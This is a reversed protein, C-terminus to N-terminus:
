DSILSYFAWNCALWITSKSVASHLKVVQSTSIPVHQPCSEAASSNLARSSSCSPSRMSLHGDSGVVFDASATQIPNSGGVRVLMGDRQSLEKQSVVIYYTIALLFPVLIMIAFSRKSILVSKWTNRHLIEVELREIREMETVVQKM